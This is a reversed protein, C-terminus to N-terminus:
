QIQKGTIRKRGTLAGNNQAVSGGASTITIGVFGCYPSTVGDWVMELGIEERREGILPVNAEQVGRVRAGGVIAFSADVIIAPIVHRAKSSDIRPLTYDCITVSARVCVANM